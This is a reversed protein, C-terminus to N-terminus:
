WDSTAGGGGGDGGGFDFSSSSDSSSGFDFSSSSSDNLMDGVIGGLMDGGALGGLIASDTAYGILASTFFDGSDDTKVEHTVSENALRYQSRKEFPLKRYCEESIIENSHLNKYNM